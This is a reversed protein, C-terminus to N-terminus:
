NQIVNRPTLNIIDNLLGESERILSETTPQGNADYALENTVDVDPQIRTRNAIYFTKKKGNLQLEFEVEDFEEDIADIEIRENYTNQYLREIFDKFAQPLSSASLFSTKLTGPIQRPEGNNQFYSEISNPLSRKIFDIKKLLGNDMMRRFVQGHLVNNVHVRYNPYGHERIFDNVSKKLITKIGFKSKRQLVLAGTNQERPIYFYFFLNRFAAHDSQVDLVTDRTSVDRIAYQEGGVGSSFYGYIIRRQPDAIAPSELTLHISSSANEDSLNQINALIDNL